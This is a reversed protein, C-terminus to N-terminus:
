AASAVRQRLVPFADFGARRLVAAAIRKLQWPELGEFRLGMGVPGREPRDNSWVVRVPLRLLTPSDALGLRLVARSGCRDPVPNAIFAGRLTLNGGRVILSRQESEYFGDLALRVRAYRRRAGSRNGTQRSAARRDVIPQSV